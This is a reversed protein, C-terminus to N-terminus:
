VPEGLLQGLLVNVDVATEEDGSIEMGSNLPQVVMNPLSARSYHHTFSNGSQQLEDKSVNHKNSNVQQNM